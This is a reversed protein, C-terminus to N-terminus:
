QISNKINNLEQEVTKTELSGGLMNSHAIQTSYPIVGKIKIGKKMLMEKLAPETKDDVKNLVVGFDKNVEHALKAAKEALLVAEYSPDVVMIVADAGGILGRGFHEIGAETDVLVWERDKLVLHNLFDLAVANMSCACGEMSHEIKGSRLLAVSGKRSICKEPLEDLEMREKFFSIKENEVNQIRVRLEKSPMFAEDDNSPALTKLMSILKKSVTPKGGLYDLLTESPPEIGFMANLGLNSEDTDIVLVKGEEGLRQALLTILTSKGCGGRGSIILKPM